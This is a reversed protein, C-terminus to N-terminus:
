PPGQRPMPRPATRVSTTLPDFEVGLMGYFGQLPALERAAWPGAEEFTVRRPASLAVLQLVDFEALLGFCFLDPASRATWNREIVQKLSFLAGHLHLRGIADDGLAAAVLASLSARPGHADIRVPGTGFREAAWGAVAEIQGVRVGLPREGVAAVLLAFLHPREAATSEGFGFPDIAVVRFGARLWAEAAPAVAHRGEDAILLVTSKPAEGSLVVAPVTWAGGISLRWFAATNGDCPQKGLCAAAVERREARVIKALLPRRSAQWALVAGESGPLEGRRPLRSALDRALSNFDANDAPLPIDLEAATRIENESPLEHYPFSAEGRFFHEGFMRYLELRNDLEFNHTGPIYNVHTRLNARGGLLSFTPLAARLLPPLTENPLFCCEDRANYTLLTPRPARMATLHCYDAVTAMDSPVQESDGLDAPREIRSLFSGYGAVPNALTVRRDLASILITQWGGGSLGVVAVRKPDAHELSLLLDLGRALALYFPALGSTGCLDLQNMRWHQYNEGCLQGMGFWEPNLAIMGRKAQNICRIQKRPAAKGQKDHGNPNLVVPVRGQLRNPLYLLAPVSLGPLVEYRLKRISYGPGGRITELWEVNTEAVRWAAAEGRFLVREFMKRRISAAAREWERGTIPPEFAPVRARTFASVEVRPLAPDIVPQRLAEAVGMGSQGASKEGRAVALGALQVAVLVVVHRATMTMM